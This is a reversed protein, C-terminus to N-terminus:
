HRRHAFLVPVPSESLMSHTAGGFVAEISRSRSFSGMVVYDPARTSVTELIIQGARAPVSQHQEIRAHIAHRSLYAAAEELPIQISGDDIHFLTVEAARTLLPTAVRLAEEADPSGDWAVLAHGHPNLGRATAPVALVPLHGWVLLDAALGAMDPFPVTDIKRNIVILDCLAAADKIAYALDGTVNLWDFPVDEHRLRAQMTDRNARQAQEEEELLLASGGVVDYQTVLRPIIAVDVCKLHGDIARTVDLAVQFRAEQGPDDHMLVLVNKM